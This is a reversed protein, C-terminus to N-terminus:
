VCAVLEGNGDGGGGGVRTRPAGEKKSFMRLVGFPVTFLSPAQIRFADLVVSGDGHEFFSIVRSAFQTYVHQNYVVTSIVFEEAALNHTFHAALIFDFSLSDVEEKSAHHNVIKEELLIFLSRSDLRRKFESMEPRTHLVGTVDDDDDDDYNDRDGDGTLNLRRRVRRGDGYNELTPAELRGDDLASVYSEYAKKQTAYFKMLHIGQVVPDTTMENIFTAYGMFFKNILPLMSVHFTMMQSPVILPDYRMVCNEILAALDVGSWALFPSNYQWSRSCCVLLELHKVDIKTLRNNVIQAFPHHIYDGRVFAYILNLEGDRIDCARLAHRIGPNRQLLSKFASISRSEQAVQSSQDHGTDPSLHVWSSCVWSRRGLHYILAALEVCLRDKMSYLYADTDRHQLTAVWRSALVVMRLASDFVSLGSLQPSLYSVAGLRELKHLRTFAATCLIQDFVLPAVVHSLMTNRSITDYSFAAAM